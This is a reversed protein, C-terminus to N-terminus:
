ANRGFRRDVIELCILIEATVRQLAYFWGAWGDLICGKVFLVYIFVAIPAPWGIRRLRDVGSLDTRNSTLLYEAESSAYRQQSGFWRALPKRDDHYLPAHLPLIDGSIICVRHGHGEKRYL